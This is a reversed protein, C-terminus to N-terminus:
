RDSLWIMSAMRGCAGDRRYSFFRQADTHTCLDGGYVQHVGAAALRLRALVYLDAFFSDARRGRSFALRAEPQRGVFAARVEAGVEFADPGIAPGLWALLQPPSVPLAAVTAELIGAALGRWGAHAAAVVAGEGDCFLVPLCDATMVACVTGPRDSWIGDAEVDDEVRAPVAAHVVNCGHEQRLWRPPQPLALADVVSRRNAAVAAPDDGCHGGLNLSAYAGQSCGGLRTSVAARVNPPAPWDPWLFVPGPHLVPDPM